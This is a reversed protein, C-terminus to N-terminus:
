FFILWVLWADFGLILALLVGCAWQFGREFGSVKQRAEYEAWLNREVISAHSLDSEGTESALTWIEEGSELRQGSFKYVAQGFGGVSGLVPVALYRGYINRYTHGDGPGGRLVIHNESM